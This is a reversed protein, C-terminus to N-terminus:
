LFFQPWLQYFPMILFSFCVYFMRSYLWQINERALAPAIMHAETAHHFTVINFGFEKKNRIMMEMDNPEYCHVQLRVPYLKIFLHQKKM